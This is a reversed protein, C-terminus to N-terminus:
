WVDEGLIELVRQNAEDHGFLVCYQSESAIGLALFRVGREFEDENQWFHILHSGIAVQDNTIGLTIEGTPDRM